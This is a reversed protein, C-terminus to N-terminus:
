GRRHRHLLLRNKDSAYRHYFEPHREDALASGAYIIDPSRNGQTTDTMSTGSAGSDWMVTGAFDSQTNVEVRYKNAIDGSDPDNYIASFAPTSDIIGTPNTQGSQATTDNSYPTTPATPANNAISQEGGLGYFTSSPEQNNFSTQIWGETRAEDSIRLEDILGDFWGSGNDTGIGLNSANSVSGVGTIDSGTGQQVGNKYIRLRNNARDVVGVIHTWTDDSFSAAPSAWGYENTTGDEIIFYFNNNDDDYELAYGTGWSANGKWIVQPWAGAGVTVDINLWASVTFSGTGFDLHGDAPDGMNVYDNTGSDFSGDIRGSAGRTMGSVVGNTNYSTSDLTNGSTDALHWVGKYSSNWVANRDQTEATVCSNGYYMYIVTNDDADLTPIKVWAVLEGNAAESGEYYYEIEHALVTTETADKFIIDYGNSNEIRGDTYASSRLWTGSENIVVPFNTQDVTDGSDGVVKTHDITIARKYAYACSTSTNNGLNYFAAPSSGTNHSTQIWGDTRAISSIRVEDMLGDFEDTRSSSWQSSGIYLPQTDHRVDGTFSNTQTSKNEDVWINLSGNDARAVVYHWNTTDTVTLDTSNLNTYADSTNYVDLRVWDSTTDFSLKWSYSTDYLKSLMAHTTDISGRKVWAELTFDNGLNLSTANPISIYDTSGNLEDAGDMQGAAGQDTVTLTSSHNNSDNSDEHTGSTEQLHQVMKYSSDWVDNKNQTETTICSNGYYMYIVTNADADLTPIKVWAVLEGNAAESGENYYEIEHALTITETSDKFIIDYGNTNEILGDTYASNRLWTGSEKILMPFDTLDVTDGSDGIVKTHDITIARKYAYDCAPNNISVEAYKSYNDLNGGVSDVLKFCYDGGATAGATARLGFEIETFELSALTIPDTTNSTEEQEGAKFSSSGPDSLGAAVNTTPDGDTLGSDVIEWDTGSVASYSGSSCTATEAVQLEYAIAGSSLGGSNDVLFRLRKITNKPLDTLKTDEEEAWTAGTGSSPTDGQDYAPDTSGSLNALDVEIRIRGDGGDGSLYTTMNVGDNAGDIGGTATVLASGLTASDAQIMISGGSGGAGGIWRAGEGAGGDAGNASITGTGSVTVTDATIFVMGGGAGGPGGSRDATDIDHGGSGGGSGYFITTLDAIGYTGGGVGNRSGCSQTATGGATGYSGGGGGGACTTGDNDGDAYGGGGAGDNASQSRNDLGGSRSEGQFSPQALDPQNLSGGRYGLNDANIAGGSNVTVTGTARFVVVGGSSGDWANATLTGGSNVTVNTWQPVRQLVVSQNGFSTGDYSNQVSSKLNLTTGDPVSAIELFEYNGVDATDGSAGQLNLLIVEDDAAFGTTSAVSISTGTPNATVTTLTGGLDTNINQSSSITVPGDAGTGTDLEGNEAGNDNRWRVHAQNLFAPGGAAYEDAGIDWTGSRTGGDVDDSFSLNSDGSLDTGQDMANTDDSALHFDKGAADEFSVTKSRLAVEPSTADQSLNTASYDLTTGGDINYNTNVGQILNNALRYVGANDGGVNVGYVVSDVITNNYLTIGGSNIYDQTFGSGWDYIINNWVKVVGDNTNQRIGAAGQIDGDSCSSGLNTARLISHGIHIESAAAVSSIRIANEQCDKAATGASNEIQLGAIRVYEDSITIVGNYTVSDVLRYKGTDWLGNHRQSAGVESALYPTYINIYNSAGTTWGNITVANTDAADAYCAVMMVTFASTLNKDPNVDGPTPETINTNQTQSQWNALSTYARYVGVSTGALTSAPTGGDKDKVTFVKSSTRGHIFAIQNSGNNYALVDGVGINDPMVCAAASNFTATSGSIEVTCDADDILETDDAGVSRYIFTISEENGLSKFFSGAGPGPDDQNNFATSIWTGPRATNSIRVEDLKGSWIENTWGENYGIYLPQTNTSLDLTGTSGTSTASGNRYVRVNSGDYTLAVHQWSGTSVDTGSDWDVLVGSLGAYLSSASDDLVFYLDEQQAVMKSIITQWVFNSDPLVWAEVTIFNSMQLSSHHNVTIYNSGAFNRGNAIKGAFDTTGNNTGNNGYTTSDSFNQNLHWVGKYYNSGGDDWVGAANQQSTASGNGYYMYIDTDVTNSLSPIKVWAVLQGTTTGDFYEIEHDLKTTGDSSTFLIDDNDDQADAALDTDSSLSVLVPFNTLTTGVKTYDITLKKRYQWNSDYWAAEVSTAIGFLALILILCIWVARQVASFRSTSTAISPIRIMKQHKQKV